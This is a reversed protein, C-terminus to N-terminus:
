QDTGTRIPPPEVQRRTLVREVADEIMPLFADNAAPHVVGALAFNWKESEQLYGSRQRAPEPRAMYFTWLIVAVTYTVSKASNFLASESVGFRAVLTFIMLEVSAILGFGLAVGFLRSRSSVKLFSSFLLLFLVLGCQMVRVGRGLSTIVAMLKSVNNSAGSVASVVSVLVLVIVAWRFLVSGMDRLADYPRFVQSFIEYMVAFGLLVSLAGATWYTNFYAKYSIHFTIFQALVSAIQFVTYSFFFPYEHRLKRRVMIAVLALQLAPGLLWLVYYSARLYM